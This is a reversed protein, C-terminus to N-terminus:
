TAKQAETTNETDWKDNRRANKGSSRHGELPRRCRHFRSHGSEAGTAASKRKGDVAKRKEREERSGGVVYHNNPKQSHPPLHPSPFGAYPPRNQGDVQNDPRSKGHRDETPTPPLSQRVPADDRRRGGKREGKKRRGRRERKQCGRRLPSLTM